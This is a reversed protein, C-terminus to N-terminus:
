NTNPFNFLEATDRCFRGQGTYPAQLPPPTPEPPQQDLGKELITKVTRYLVSDHALARRCAAELRNSGYKKGLGIVGQAARLHDLVRHAFLAEILEHCGPGIEQAQSLCWQPTRMKYALAEPPLHEDLTSRSGHRHLRPHIAVLEHDRFCRVTTEVARLWLSQPVLTYPVSYFCYDFQVHGDAHVKVKKWVALEPPRDPLPKLLYRETEVFQTLPRQRTTGHIRNGAVGVVWESLQHNGDSLSRFRRLPLFTKRVFKVASEVRGKM